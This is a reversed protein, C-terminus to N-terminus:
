VCKPLKKANAAKSRKAPCDANDVSNVLIGEGGGEETKGKDAREDEHSPGTVPFRKRALFAQKNKQSEAPKRKQHQSEQLRLNMKFKFFFAFAPNKSQQITGLAHAYAVIAVFAPPSLCNLGKRSRGFTNKRLQPIIM